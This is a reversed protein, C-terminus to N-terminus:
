KILGRIPSPLADRIPDLMHLAADVAECFAYTGADSPEDCYTDIAKNGGIGIAVAPTTFCVLAITGTRRAWRSVGPRKRESKGKRNTKKGSKKSPVRNQTNEAPVDAATDQVTDFVATPTHDPAEPEPDSTDAEAEGRYLFPYRDGLPLPATEPNQTSAPTEIKEQAGLSALLESHLRMLAADSMNALDGVGVESSPDDPEYNVTTDYQQFIAENPAPVAEAVGGGWEIPLHRAPTKPSAAQWRVLDVPSVPTPPTEVQSHQNADMDLQFVGRLLGQLLREQAGLDDPMPISLVADGRRAEIVHQRSEPSHMTM